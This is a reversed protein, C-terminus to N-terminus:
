RWLEQTPGVLRERRTTTVAELREDGQAVRLRAVLTAVVLSDSPATGM